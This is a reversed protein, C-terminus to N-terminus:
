HLQGRDIRKRVRIKMERFRLERLSLELMM